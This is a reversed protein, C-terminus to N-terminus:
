PNILKNLERAEAEDKLGTIMAMGNKIPAMIRPMSYVKGNVVMAMAKGTQAATFEAWKKAGQYSFHLVINNNQVETKKLDDLIVASPLLVLISDQQMLDPYATPFSRTTQKEGSPQGALAFIGFTCEQAFIGGSILIMLVLLLIKLSKM